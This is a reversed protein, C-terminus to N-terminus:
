FSMYKIKFKNNWTPVTICCPKLVVEFLMANHPTNATDSAVTTLELSSEFTVYLQFNDNNNNDQCSFSVHDSKNLNQRM